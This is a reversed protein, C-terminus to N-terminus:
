RVTAQDPGLGYPGLYMHPGLRQLNAVYQEPPIILVHVPIERPLLTTTQITHLGRFMYRLSEVIPLAADGLDAILEHGLYLGGKTIRPRWSASAAARGVKSINRRIAREVAPWMHQAAPHSGSEKRGLLYVGLETEGHSKKSTCERCCPLTLTAQHRHEFLCRPIVHDPDGLEKVEGCYACIGIELRKV